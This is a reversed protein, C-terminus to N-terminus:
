DTGVADIGFCFAEGAQAGVAYEGPPLTTTSKFRFSSQGYKEASFKVISDEMTSKSGGFASAKAMPLYRNGEKPQWRLFQIQKQPDTARSEVRVVFEVQRNAPFRVPSKDGAIMYSVQAGGFGFARVKTAVALKQRELDILRPGTPDLVAVVFNYEPELESSPTTELPPQPTQAVSAVSIPYISTVMTLAAVVVRARCLHKIM